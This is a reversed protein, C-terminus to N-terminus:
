QHPQGPQWTKGGDTSYRYQGTSASHQIIPAASSSAPNPTSAASPGHGSSNAYDELYGNAGAIRAKLNDASQATNFYRELSKEYEEGKLGHALMLATTYLKLQTQLKAVQPSNAGIKGAMVGSWRGALPGLFKATADIQDNLADVQPQIMQARQSQTLVAATPKPPIVGPSGGLNQPLGGISSNSVYQARVGGGTGTFTNYGTINGKADNVPVIRPFEPKLAAQSATFQEVTGNPHEAKWASFLSQSGTPNASVIADPVIQGTVTNKIGQGPVIEGYFQQQTTPDTYIHTNAKHQATDAQQQQAAARIGAASMGSMVTNAQVWQLGPFDTPISAPNFNPEGQHLDLIKQRVTPWNQEMTAAPENLYQTGLAHLSDARDAATKQQTATLNAAKTQYDLKANIIGQLQQPLVQGTKQAAKIGKDFYNPDTPDLNAFSAMLAKTSAQQMQQQQVQGGSLQVQNRLAQQRLPAEAQAQAQQQQMGKLQMLNAYQNLLDPQQPTKLDLAPLPISAM